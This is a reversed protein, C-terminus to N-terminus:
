AKDTNGDGGRQPLKLDRKPLTEDEDIFDEDYDEASPRASLQPKPPYKAAIARELALRDVYVVPQPEKEPEQWSEAFTIGWETFLKLTSIMPYCGTKTVIFRGKPLAKLENATILPRGTMQLTRSGEGKGKSIYGAQVTVDGLSKSLTQALESAPAFGGYITLQCNDAIIAAGERGYTQELQYMSQVIAM